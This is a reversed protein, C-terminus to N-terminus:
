VTRGITASDRVIEERPSCIVRYINGQYGDMGRFFSRRDSDGTDPATAQRLQSTGDDNVSGSLMSCCHRLPYTTILNRLDRRMAEHGTQLEPGM